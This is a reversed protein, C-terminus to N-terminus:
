KWAVHAAAAVVDEEIDDGLGLALATTRSRRLEADAGSGQGAPRSFSSLWHAPPRHPTGLVALGGSVAAGEAALVQSREALVSQDGGFAVGGATAM